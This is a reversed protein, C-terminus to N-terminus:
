SDRSPDEDERHNLDPLDAGLPQPTSGFPPPPLEAAHM